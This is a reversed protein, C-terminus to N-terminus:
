APRELKKRMRAVKRDQRTSRTTVTYVVFAAVGALAAYWLFSLDLRIPRDFSLLEYTFIKVVNYAQAWTRARQLVGTTADFSM